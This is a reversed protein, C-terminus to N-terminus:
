RARRRDIRPQVARRWDLALLGGSGAAAAAALLGLTWLPVIPADIREAPRAAAALDVEPLGAARRQRELASEQRGQFRRELQGQRRAYKPGILGLGVLAMISFALSWFWPSDTPRFRSTSSPADPM